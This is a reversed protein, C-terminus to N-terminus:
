SSCWSCSRSSSSLPRRRGGCSVREGGVRRSGVVWPVVLASLALLDTVDATMSVASVAPLPTGSVAAALATLPWQAIGAVAAAAHAAAPWVEVASFVIASAGIAVLLVRLSPASGRRRAAAVECLAQLLLPFFILGAFDSLKGTWWGPAAAKLVHDNVLLVGIAALAAPHLLGDGPVPRAAPRSGEGVGARRAVTSIASM